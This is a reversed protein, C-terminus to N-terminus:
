SRKVQQEVLLSPRGSTACIMAINIVSLLWTRRVIDDGLRRFRSRQQRSSAAAAARSKNAPASVQEASVALGSASVHAEEAELAGGKGEPSTRLCASFTRRCTRADHSVLVKGSRLIGLRTHRHAVVAAALLVVSVRLCRRQQSEEATQEREEACDASSGSAM